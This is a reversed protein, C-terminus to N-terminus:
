ESGLSALTWAAQERLLPFPHDLFPVALAADAPRGTSALAILANRRLFVINRRPIFFRHYRHDLEDDSTTLWDCLSVHGPVPSESSRRKEVGRNHPCVDQCVDCGYLTDGWTARIHDPVPHRSQAWYAICSGVDLQGGPLIAGTPCADICATCSGCRPRAPPTAELAADTVITGLVVWSGHRRTIINTHKGYFGVGARAAAERDVHHNDDVLARATYGAAKVLGAVSELRERLASYADGRSYRAIRGVPLEADAPQVDPSWYCLAASIVSCAGDVLREPHCSFEPRSMTFKLDAFLGRAGRDAIAAETSDYGEAHCVGLESIGSALAHEIIAATTLSAAPMPAAYRLSRGSM